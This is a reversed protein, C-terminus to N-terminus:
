AGRKRRLRAKHLGRNRRKMARRKGEAVSWGLKRNRQRQFRVVGSSGRLFKARDRAEKEGAPVPQSAAKAQATAAGDAQVQLPQQMPSTGPSFAGLAALATFAMLGARSERRM